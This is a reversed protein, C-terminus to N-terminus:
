CGCAIVPLDECVEAFSQGPSGDCGYGVAGGHTGDPINV